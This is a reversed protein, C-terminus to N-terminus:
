RTAKRHTEIRAGLIFATLWILAFIGGMLYMWPTLLGLVIIGLQTLWGAIFGWAKKLGIIAAVSLATAVGCWVLADRVSAESVQLMGPFALWVIVVEFVLIARLTTLMPNSPELRM